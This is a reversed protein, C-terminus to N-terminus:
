INRGLILRSMVADIRELLGPAGGRRRAWGCYLSLGLVGLAALITALALAAYQQARQPWALVDLPEIAEAEGTDIAALLDSGTLAHVALLRGDAAEALRALEEADEIHGVADALRMASLAGVERRLATFADFLRDRERTNIRAARAAERAARSSAADFRAPQTWAEGAQALLAMASALVAERGLAPDPGFAIDEALAADLLGAAWAAKVIRAGARREPAAGAVALALGALIPDAQPKPLFGIRCQGTSRNMLAGLACGHVILGRVDGYLRASHPTLGPLAGLALARGGPDVFWSEADALAPGYLADARQLRLRVSRPAFVLTEPELGQARGAELRAEVAEDLRRERRWAPQARLEAEVQSLRRGDALLDLALAERGRMAIYAAALSRTQAIDPMSQPSAHLSAALADAWYAHRDTQAPVARYIAQDIAASVSPPPAAPRPVSQAALLACALSLLVLCLFM